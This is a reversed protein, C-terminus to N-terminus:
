ASHTGVILRPTGNKDSMKFLDPVEIVVLPEGVKKDDTAFTVPNGYQITLTRNSIDSNRFAAFLARSVDATAYRPLNYKHYIDDYSELSVTEGSAIASLLGAIHEARKQRVTAEIPGTMVALVDARQARREDTDERLDMAAFGRLGYEFRAHCGMSYLVSQKAKELGRSVGAGEDRYFLDPNAIDGHLPNRPDLEELARHYEILGEIKAEFGLAEAM